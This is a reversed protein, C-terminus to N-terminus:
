PSDATQGDRRSASTDHDRLNSIKLFLKRNTLKPHKSEASELLVSRCWFPVGLNKVWISGGETSNLTAPMRHCNAASHNSIACHDCHPITYSVIARELPVISSGTSRGKGSFPPGLHVGQSNHHTSNRIAMDGRRTMRDM